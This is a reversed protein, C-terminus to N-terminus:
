PATKRLQSSIVAGVVLAAGAAQVPTLREGITAAAILAVVVPELNLVVATQVAGLRPLLLFVSVIGAAYFLSLGALGLWAVSGDPWAFHGSGNAAAAFVATATSMMLFTRLPAGLTPALRPTLVLTTTFSASAALAAAVGWPDIRDPNVGLVLALGAFAAVLAIATRRSIRHEGLKATVAATLLPYTYFLLIALTVPLLKVAIQVFLTQAVVCLGLLLTGRGQRADIRIPTRRILLLLCLIAAASGARLTAATLLGVGHGFALRACVHGSALSTGAAVLGALPWWATRSATM